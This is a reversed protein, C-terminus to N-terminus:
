RDSLQAALGVIKCLLHSLHVRQNLLNVPLDVQEVSRRPAPLRRPPTRLGSLRRTIRNVGPAGPAPAPTRNGSVCRMGLVRCLHRRVPCLVGGLAPGRRRPRSQPVERRKMFPVTRVNVQLEAVEPTVRRAATRAAPRGYRWGCLVLLATVEASALHLGAPKSGRAAPVLDTGTRHRGNAATWAAPVALVPLRKVQWNTSARDGIAVRPGLGAPDRRSILRATSPVPAPSRCRRRRLGRLCLHRGSRHRSRREPSRRRPRSRTSCASRWLPASRSTLASVFM